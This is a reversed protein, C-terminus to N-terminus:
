GVICRLRSLAGALRALTCSTHWGPVDSAERVPLGAARAATGLRQSRGQLLEGSGVGKRRIGGGCGRRISPLATSIIDM